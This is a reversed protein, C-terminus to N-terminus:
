QAPYGCSPYGTAAGIPRWALRYCNLCGRCLCPLHGPLTQVLLGFVLYIRDSRIALRLFPEGIASGVPGVGIGVGAMNRGTGAAGAGGGEGKPRTSASPVTYRSAGSPSIWIPWHAAPGGAAPRAKKWRLYSSKTTSISSIAARKASPRAVGSCAWVTRTFTRSASAARAKIPSTAASPILHSPTASFMTVTREATASFRAAKRASAVAARSARATSASFSPGDVDQFCDLSRKAFIISSHFARGRVSRAVSCARQFRM